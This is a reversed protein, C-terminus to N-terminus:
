ERLEARGKGSHLPKGVQPVGQPAGALAKKAKQGQSRYVKVKMPEEPRKAGTVASRTAQAAEKADQM